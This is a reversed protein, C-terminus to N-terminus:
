RQQGKNKENEQLNTNLNKITNITLKNSKNIKEEETKDLNYIEIFLKIANKADDQNDQKKLMPINSKIAHLLIKDISNIKELFKDTAENNKNNYIINASLLNEPNQTSYKFIKDKLSDILNHNNIKITNLKEKLSVELSKKTAEYKDFDQHTKNNKLFNDIKKITAGIIIIYDKDGKYIKNFEEKEQPRFEKKFEDKTFKENLNYKEQERNNKRENNEVPKFEENKKNIRNFKKLIKNFFLSLFNNNKFINKFM